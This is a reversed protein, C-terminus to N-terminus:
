RILFGSFYSETISSATFTGSASTCVATIAVGSALSLVISGGITYVAGSSTTGMNFISVASGTVRIIVTPQRLTATADKTWKYYINFCYKGTVPTTYTNSAFDTGTTFGGTLDFVDTTTGDGQPTVLRALFESHVGVADAWLPNASAGQTQLYQGSTGPTLRVLTTGNDYLIDGQHTTGVKLTTFAGTSPTVTGIVGPVTLNLKSGVIAASASVDANVIGGTLSLKSYVIGASNSINNNDIGGNYDSYIVGFCSNHQSAIIVAGASFTFPVSIIM